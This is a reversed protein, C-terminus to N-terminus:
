RRKRCYNTMLGLLWRSRMVKACAAAAQSSVKGSGKVLDKVCKKPGVALELRTVARLEPETKPKVRDKYNNEM